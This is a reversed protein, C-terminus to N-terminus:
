PLPPSNLKLCVKKKHHEQKETSEVKGHDRGRDGIELRVDRQLGQSCGVVEVCVRRERRSAVELMAPEAGVTPLHAECHMKAQAKAQCGKLM